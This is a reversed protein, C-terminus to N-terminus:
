FSNKSEVGSAFEGAVSIKSKPHDFVPAQHSVFVISCKQSLRSFIRNKLQEGDAVCVWCQKKRSDLTASPEV